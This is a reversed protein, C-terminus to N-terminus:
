CTVTLNDALAATIQLSSWSELIQKWFPGSVQNYAPLRLKEGCLSRGLATQPKMCCTLSTRGSHIIWSIYFDDRRKYGLRLLSMDDSRYEVPRVSWSCYLISSSGYLPM